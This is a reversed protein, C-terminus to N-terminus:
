GSGKSIASLPELSFIKKPLTVNPWYRQIKIALHDDQRDSIDMRTPIRHDGYDLYAAFDVQYGLSGFSTYNQIRYVELPNRRFYICQLIRGRRTRLTIVAERENIFEMSASHFQQLSIRGLLMAVFHDAPMDINALRRIAGEGMTYTDLKGTTHSLIELRQGNRVLSLYPRGDIGLISLRLQTQEHGAWAARQRIQVEGKRHVIIRGTAKFTHLDQNIARIQSLTEELEPDLPPQDPMSQFGSCGTIALAWLLLIGLLACIKKHLKFNTSLSQRAM